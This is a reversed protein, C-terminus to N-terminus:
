SQWAETPTRRYLLFLKEVQLWRKLSYDFRLEVMTKGQLNFRPSIAYDMVHTSQGAEGSNVGLFKTANDTQMILDSANGWRFGEPGNRFIWGHGIEEFDEAYPISLIGLPTVIAENTRISEGSPTGEYRASIQYIYTSGTELGTDRYTPQTTTALEEGNRYIIYHTLGPMMSPRWALDVYTDAPKYSLNTPPYLPNINVRFTVSDGHNIIETIDLGGPGGQGGNWLFANPDTKDGIANRNYSGLTASGLSGNATLSGGPRYLYVEDPPGSANGRGAGPNIRYVLMGSGQLSNEYRGERKRFELVFYESSSLPSRVKFLNREPNALPLLTYTGTETIEPLESIWENYRYRLFGCIGQPPNGSSNMLCWSGVANPAGTDNYHYLDPAGFVHGLEHCTTGLGFGNEMTLFYNTIRAGKLRTAYTSLSWAHPWLLDSWASSSGRVVFSINDVLGDDNGDIIISDPIQSEIFEVARKLMAHERAARQNSLYGQTNVSTWPLYYARPYIDVYSVNITDPSVPYHYCRLDLTNYSTERYYDRVSPEEESEWQAVFGSRPKVFTSDDAFSIYICISNVLGHKPTGATSKLHSQYEARRERYLRESIRAWTALGAQAPSVTGAKHRTPVVDDGQRTGYYFYGDNPNLVITYGDADHLWRYFEDGTAFCEIVQGDPQKITQPVWEHWAGFLTAPLLVLLLLLKRM